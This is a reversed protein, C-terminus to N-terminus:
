QDMKMMSLVMEATGWFIVILVTIITLSILLDKGEEGRKEMMYRSVIALVSGVAVMLCGIITLYFITSKFIIVIGAFIIIFAPVVLKNMKKKNEM